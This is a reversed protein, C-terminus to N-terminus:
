SLASVNKGGSATVKAFEITDNKAVVSKSLNIGVGISEMIQLYMTAVKDEFLVIDDGLIEYQDYWTKYNSVGVRCAAVQVIFHHTLDLM